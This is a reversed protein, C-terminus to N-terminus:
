KNQRILYEVAARVEEETAAGGRPIMMGKGKMVSAVLADAGQAILPAWAAQDGMKPNLMKHCTACWKDYVAKGNAAALQGSVVLLVVTGALITVRKM